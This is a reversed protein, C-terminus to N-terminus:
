AHVDAEPLHAMWGFCAQLALVLLSAEAPTSVMLMTGVLEAHEAPLLAPLLASPVARVYPRLTLCRLNHRSTQLAKQLPLIRIGADWYICNSVLDGGHLRIISLVRDHMRM